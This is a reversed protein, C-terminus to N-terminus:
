LEESLQDMKQLDAVEYGALEPETAHPDFEKGCTICNKM